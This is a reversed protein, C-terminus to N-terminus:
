TSVDRDPRAADLVRRHLSLLDELDLRPGDDARRHLRFDGDITSAEDDLILTGRCAQNRGAAMESGHRLHVSTAFTNQTCADSM